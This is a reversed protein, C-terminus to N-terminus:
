RAMDGQGPAAGTRDQRDERESWRVGKRSAIYIISGSETATASALSSRGCAGVTGIWELMWLEVCGRPHVGNEQPHLTEGPDSHVAAVNRCTPTCRPTARHLWRRQPDRDAQAKQDPRRQRRHNRVALRICHGAQETGVIVAFPLHAGHFIPTQLGKM